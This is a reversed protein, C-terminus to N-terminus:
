DEKTLLKIIQPYLSFSNQKWNQAIVKAQEKSGAFLSIEFIPSYGEIIKCKINYKNESEPFYEATVSLENKADEFNNKISTDLKLKIIGPLLSETLHLVKRGEDTIEYVSHSEIKYNVVFKSEVLDSLFQQLYFYNIEQIDLTLKLLGSNTIPKSIKDLIYLILLKGEALTEGDQNLKM